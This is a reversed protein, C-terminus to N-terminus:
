LHAGFCARANKSTQDILEQMTCGLLNALFGATEQINAPDNRTGRKSQPPLFPADTELLLRDPPTRRALERLPEASPYTVNGAFSCYCGLRLASEQYEPPGSMCHLIVTPLSSSEELVSLVESYADRAHIVLPKKVAIALDRQARFARKQQDLVAVRQDAPVRALDLGAEGIAVVKPHLALEKLSHELEPNWLFSDDPHIGVSAFLGDAQEAIEIASRSTELTTGIVISAGVGNKQADEWFDQWNKLLPELNYHCHTDIIM